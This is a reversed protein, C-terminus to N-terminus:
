SFIIGVRWRPWLPETPLDASVSCVRRYINQTWGRAFPPGLSSFTDGCLNLTCYLSPFFALPLNPHSTALIDEPRHHIDGYCRVLRPDNFAYFVSFLFDGSSCWITIKKDFNLMAPRMRPNREGDFLALARKPSVPEVTLSISLSVPSIYTRLMRMQVSAVTWALRPVPPPPTIACALLM